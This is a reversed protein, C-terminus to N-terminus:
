EAHATTLEDFLGILFDVHEKTPGQVTDPTICATLNCGEYGTQPGWSFFSYAYPDRQYLCPDFDLYRYQLPELNACAAHEQFGALRQESLTGDRITGPPLFVNYRGTWYISVTMDSLPHDPVFLGISVHFVPHFNDEETHSACSGCLMVVITCALCGFWLAASSGPKM